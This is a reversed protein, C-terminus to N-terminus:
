RRFDRRRRMVKTPIAAEYLPPPPPPCLGGGRRAAPREIQGRGVSRQQAHGRLEASLAVSKSDTRPPEVGGPAMATRLGAGSRPAMVVEFPNENRDSGNPGVGASGADAAVTNTASTVSHLVQGWCTLRHSQGWCTLRHPSHPRLPRMGVGNGTRSQQEKPRTPGAPGGVENSPADTWARAPM